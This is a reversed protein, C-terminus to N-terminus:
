KDSTLLRSLSVLTRVSEQPLLPSVGPSSAMRRLMEVFRLAVFRSPLRQDQKVLQHFGRDIALVMELQAYAYATERALLAQAEGQAAKVRANARQATLWNALRQQDISAQVPKFPGLMVELIDVGFSESQKRLQSTMQRGIEDRPGENPAVAEFLEDFYKGAVIGRLTSDVNGM